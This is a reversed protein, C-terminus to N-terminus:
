SMDGNQYVIAVGRAWEVERWSSNSVACWMSSCSSLISDLSWCFFSPRGRRSVSWCRSTDLSNSKTLLCRLFHFSMIFDRLLDRLNFQSKKDRSRSCFHTYFQILLSVLSQKLQFKQSIIRRTLDPYFSRSRRFKECTFNHSQRCNFPRTENILRILRCDGELDYTM